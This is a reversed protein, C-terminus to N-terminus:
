GDLKVSTIKEVADVLQLLTEELKDLRGYVEDLAHTINVHERRNPPRYMLEIPEDM